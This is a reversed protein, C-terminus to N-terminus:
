RNRPNIRGAANVDTDQTGKEPQAAFAQDLFGNATISTKGLGNKFKPYLMEAPIELNEFLAYNEKTAERMKSQVSEGERLSFSSPVYGGQSERWAQKGNYSIEVSQNWPAATVTETNAPRHFHFGFRSKGFEQTVSEGRAASGKLVVESDPDEHWGNAKVARLLGERVKSGGTAEIKVGSGPKLMIMSVADMNAMADLAGQHPVKAVGVLVTQSEDGSIVVRSRRFSFNNRSSPYKSQVGALLNFNGLMENHALNVGSSAYSWVVIEKPISYLWAGAKIWNDDLMVIRSKSSTSLNRKKLVTPQANKDLEWIKISTATVAVLKRGDQSFGVGGYGQNPLPEQALQKGTASDHFSLSGGSKMIVFYKRSPHLTFHNEALGSVTYLIKRLDFDYLSVSLGDAMLLQNDGVFRVLFSSGTGVTKSKPTKWALEPTARPQGPEVRYTGFAGERDELTFVTLLRSQKASYDVIKEDRKFSPGQTVQSESPRTWYLRSWGHKQYSSTAQTGVAYWPEPGGTPVAMSIWNNHTLTFGFGGEKAAVSPTSSELDSLTLAGFDPANSLFSSIKVSTEFSIEQPQPTIVLQKNVLKQFKTSLREIPLKVTTGDEKFLSVHTDDRKIYRAVVENTGTNDKWKQWHGEGNPYRIYKHAIPVKKTAGKTTFEVLAHGPHSELIVAPGWSNSIKVEVTDGIRIPNAGGIMTEEGTIPTKAILRRLKPALKINEISIDTGDEKRITVENETRSIYRAIIKFKGNASSWEQWKGEGNPFRIEAFPFEKTQAKGSYFHSVSAQGIHMQTIVGDYWAKSILVQVKDKVRFPSAGDVFNEEGTVATKMVRKKLKMTLEEIPFRIESGDGKLLTVHTENRGIYRAEINLKGATDKWREWHGEGVPFRIDEFDFKSSTTRSNRQYEVEAKGIDISKVVGDYWSSFYKIQVQDGVRIPDIGDISNEQGTIPTKKVRQKLNLALDNIAITMETGDAQRIMVSEEDRAIYRAEVNIKGKSDKWVAWQGEGNPFRIRSFSFESETSTSGHDHKVVAKGDAVSVVTGAYWNNFQSVEVSDGVRVPDIQQSNSSPRAQGNCFQPTLFGGLTPV